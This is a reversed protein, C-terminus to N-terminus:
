RKIRVLVPMEPVLELQVGPPLEEAAILNHVKIMHEEGELQVFALISDQRAFRKAVTFSRPRVLPADIAVAVTEDGYAEPEADVRNKSGKPRGPGRKLTTAPAPNSGAVEQLNALRAAKQEVGRDTTASAVQEQESM